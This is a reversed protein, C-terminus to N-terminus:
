GVICIMQLLNEGLEPPGELRMRKRAEDKTLGKTVLRWAVDGPLLVRATAKAVDLWLEWRGNRRVLFWSGGAEGTLAIEWVTGEPAKVERFAYPLARMFTDLVPFLYKREILPPWGTADRIQQQHHWRETYERAVDFWNASSREGAWSVGFIAPAHPDLSSFLAALEEGSQELLQILLQPSLRRTAQVWDGNLRNIFAAVAQPTGLDPDPPPAYGDRQMSLRRLGTDLLHSAVDKVTWGACTTPKSWDDPALGRLLEILARNLPAFLEGLLIPEPAKM